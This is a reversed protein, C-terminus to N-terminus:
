NGANEGKGVVNGVRDFFFQMMEDFQFKDDAFAKLKNPALEIIPQYLTLFVASTSIPRFKKSNGLKQM